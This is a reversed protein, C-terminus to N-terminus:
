VVERLFPLQADAWAYGPRIAREAVDIIQQAATGDGFPNAWGRVVGLMARTAELIAAPATGALRNAGVEITEPRETNNRLTVCPVHLICSEEQIGGSDTLVLQTNALLYLFDLYGVPDIIRLGPDRNAVADGMDWEVLRRRTRPHMPFIVPRQFEASIRQLGALLDALRPKVDVNEERHVTCVLYNDPALQLRDLITSKRRAIDLNQQVADVITNGTVYIEGRVNDNILNRRAQETPAFLWESIHDLIIRNHEEPMSWDYSRLGSEVHGLGIRLKRAALGAALNTNADGCVLVVKPREALLAQEVGCLMEATQAGHYYCKSVSKLRYQAPALELDEFLVQDMTYSYHQGTHIVFYSMRRAALERILPSMKIIGPRTGVVIAVKDELEHPLFIKAALVDM